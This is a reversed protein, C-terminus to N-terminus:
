AYNLIINKNVYEREVQYPPKYGLASHPYEENYWEVWDDFREKFDRLSKFENISVLEEKITRMIRETDANGKPNSYSTFIQNISLLRCHKGFTKSTPQSGNDSVLQLMKHERTGAPMQKMVAMELADIWVQTKSNNNISWGVIKKSYWDLVVHLYAWGHHPIMVKTMDIGWIQNPKDARPKSKTETRKAKLRNNKPCLLNNNKMLRYVRKKNIILNCKNRIYACVRRYGWFPHDAKIQLIHQLIQQNM